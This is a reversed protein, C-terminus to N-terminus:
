SLAAKEKKQEREKARLNWYASILYFIGSTAVRDPQIRLIARNLMERSEAPFEKTPCMLQTMAAEGTERPSYWIRRIPTGWPIGGGQIRWDQFLFTMDLDKSYADANQMRAAALEFGRELGLLLKAKVNEDTELHWLLELSSQMQLLAYTPVWRLLTKEDLALSQEVSKEAYKRYESLYTEAKKARMPDASERCTDWAAAYIMPLRAAEHALVNWMRSIGRTDRSGDLRLSDYDNEPVVNRIMRDAILSLVKRIAEKEAENGECLPSRYYHWLGHVAHTYQDRSSNPYVSKGDAPLVARALFGPDSHVTAALHVGLFVEHALRKMEARVDLDSECKARDVIATLWAGAFIMGDEMGTGYGCENPFIRRVEEPTPLHKRYEGPAYSTLYDVFVHSEPAWFREWSVKWMKEVLEDAPVGRNEMGFLPVNAFPSVNGWPADEGMAFLGSFATCATLFVFNRRSLDM